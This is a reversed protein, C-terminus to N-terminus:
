SIPPPPAQAVDHQRDADPQRHRCGADLLFGRPQLYALVPGVLASQGARLLARVFRTALPAAAVVVLAGGLVYEGTAGPHLAFGVTFTMQAVLFAGLGPVFWDPGDPRDPLMLFVDGALCHSLGVWQSPGCSM